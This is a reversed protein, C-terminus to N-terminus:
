YIRKIENIRIKEYCGIVEDDCHSVCIVIKNKEEKNKEEFM